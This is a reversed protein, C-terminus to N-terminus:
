SVLVILFTYYLLIIYLIVNKERKKVSLGLHSGLLKFHQTKGFYGLLVFCQFDVGNLIWTQKM